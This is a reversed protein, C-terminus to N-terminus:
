SGACPWALPASSAGQTHRPPPRFPTANSHCSCTRAKATAAAKSGQGRNAQQGSGPKSAVRTVGPVWLLHDHDLVLAAVDDALRHLHPRRCAGAVEGLLSGWVGPPGARCPGRCCGGREVASWVGVGGGHLVNVHQGLVAGHALREDVQAVQVVHHTLPVQRCGVTCGHLWADGRGWASAARSAWRQQWPKGRMRVGRAQPTGM